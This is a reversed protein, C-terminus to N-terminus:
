VMHPGIKREFSDTLIAGKKVLATQVGSACEASVVTAAETMHLLHLNGGTVVETM